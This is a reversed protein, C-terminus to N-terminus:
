QSAPRSHCKSCDNLPFAVSGHCIGCFKGEAIEKMSMKTKGTELSFPEPHCMGCGTWAVHKKHSFIINPLGPLKPAMPEERLNSVMSESEFTVGEIFDKVKLVGTEEAINWDIKNGYVSQPMTKKFEFFDKKARRKQEKADKANKPHCKSCNRIDFSEKGNHCTGCYRGEKNDEESIETAGVMEFEIDVHCLRCSHKARHTWHRFVVPMQGKNKVMEGLVVDGFEHSKKVRASGNLPLLFLIGLVGGLLLYLQRNGRM